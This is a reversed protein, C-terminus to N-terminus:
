YRDAADANGHTYSDAPYPLMTANWDLWAQKLAAFRAPEKMKYDSRERPDVALNFLWEKGGLQLYKWDGDRLAAQAAAKYRWFLRRPQAPAQDVVQSLLNLGDSPWAPDPATGAAALLTPLWDMSINVQDSISGARVRAPWRLFFPVRIGGELLETKQGSFPWTDSFREGGNDSTFIVITDQAMGAEDLARLVRGIGADMAAIMRHYTQLSGGDKHQLDGLTDAVAKDEPGEWPWHPATYHLSLFLPRGDATSRGVERVARDSLLDTLYGIDGAPTDGDLLAGHQPRGPTQGPQHRFYDMGGPTFGYFSDYGHKLPSFQATDGLHWKGVLATRYGAKKLLSPLTPHSPDLGVDTRGALPEELGARLRYQYRGTILGTRTASCVASNAYSQRLFLGERAIRDINPTALGRLGTIGTDAYGLDDAMIWLINPRGPPTAAPLWPSLSAALGTAAGAALLRRRDISTERHKM